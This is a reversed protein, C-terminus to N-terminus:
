EDAADSTYLLCDLGAKVDVLGQDVRDSTLQVYRSKQLSNDITPPSSSSNDTTPQGHAQHRLKASGLSGAFACYAYPALCGVAILPCCVVSLECRRRMPPTITRHFFFVFMSRRVDFLLLIRVNFASCQVGFKSCFLFAFMSRRVEFTSSRVSSSHSCQVGFMSSRVSSSYSCQVGFM